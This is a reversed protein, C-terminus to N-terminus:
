SESGDCREAAGVMTAPTPTPASNSKTTASGSSVGTSSPRPKTSSKSPGNGHTRSRRRRTIAPKRGAGTTMKGARVMSRTLQLLREARRKEKELHSVKKELEEIRKRWGASESTAESPSGPTLAKLMATLARTELQYYTGRSMQAEVILESVPKEGSLASLIMLCRRRAMEDLDQQEMLWRPTPRVRQKRSARKAARPPSAAKSKKSKM